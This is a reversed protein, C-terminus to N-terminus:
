PNLVPFSNQLTITVTTLQSQGVRCRCFRRRRAAQPRPVLGCPSAAWVPRPPAHDAAPPTRCHLHFGQTTESLPLQHRQGTALGRRSSNWLCTSSLRRIRERRQVQGARCVIRRAATARAAVPHRRRNRPKLAHTQTPTFLDDILISPLRVDLQM